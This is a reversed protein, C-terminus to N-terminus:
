IKKNINNIYEKTFKIDKNKLRKKLSELIINFTKDKLNEENSINYTDYLSAMYIHYHLLFENLTNGREINLINSNKLFNYLYKHKYISQLLSLEYEIIPRYNYPKVKIQRYDNDWVDLDDIIITREEFVKNEFKIISPYKEKLTNIIQEQYITINKVSNYNDTYITYNRSFYPKNFKINIKDEIIKVMNNVYEETGTSFIFFESNKYIKRIGDFFEKIYPRFFNDPIYHSKILSKCIDDNQEVKNIHCSTKIFETFTDFYLFPRSNGILTNDIDIIFIIPLKKSTM